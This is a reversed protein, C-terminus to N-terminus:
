RLDKQWSGEYGIARFGLAENVSLMPRNEEANFTTVLTTGPAHGLLAMINAAKLLMGLRRGRAEPLVLTDEQIAAGAGSGGVTVETFGVLRGSPVHEAAATLLLRGSAMMAADRDAVRQANWVDEIAEMGATPDEISMSTHLAALDNRWGPPTEGIWTVVRYDRGVRHQAGRVLDSFVDSAGQLGVQSIRKIQELAYAHRTLFRVGPDAAPLAGFGTPSQITPGDVASHRVGSQFVSKDEEVAASELTELLAAGIGRGRSGGLVEVNITAADGIRRWGLVARAVPRGEVRAVWVRRSKHRDHFIPWLEVATAELGDTGLIESEIRNRIAIMDVFESTPTPQDAIVIEDVTFGSM